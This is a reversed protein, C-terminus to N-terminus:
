NPLMGIKNNGLPSFSLLKRNITVFIKFNFTSNLSISEASILSMSYTTMLSLPASTPLNAFNGAIEAGRWKMFILAVVKLRIWRVPCSM